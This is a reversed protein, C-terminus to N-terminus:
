IIGSRRMRLVADYFAVRIRDLGWVEPVWQSALIGLEAYKENNKYCDVMKDKLDVIDIHADLGNNEFLHRHGKQGPKWYLGSVRHLDCLKNWLTAKITRDVRERNGDAGVEWAGNSVKKLLRPMHMKNLLRGTNWELGWTDVAFHKYCWWVPSQKLDYKVPINYREDCFPYAWKTLIVPRGM